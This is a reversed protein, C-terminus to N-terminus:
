GLWEEGFVKKLDTKEPWAERINGDEDVKGYTLDVEAGSPRGIVRQLRKIVNKYRGLIEIKIENPIDPYQPKEEILGRKWRDYERSWEEYIETEWFKDRMEAEIERALKVWVKARDRVNPHSFRSGEVQLFRVRGLYLRDDKIPHKVDAQRRSERIRLYVAKVINGRKAKREQVELYM